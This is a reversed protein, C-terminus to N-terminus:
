AAPRSLVCISQGLYGLKEMALGSEFKVPHPLPVFAEDGDRITEITLELHSAWSQIADRSLFVNLPRDQERTAVSHAFVAWHSPVKFELFSFVIKGGPKLVRKAEQLCIYSDEHLLHTMVSFLCVWDAQGDREPIRTGNAVEFRWDTRPVLDHAFNVLDPVVDIGLYRGASFEALAKALRGSGCGVDIIYHAPMLGLYILLEREVMGMADFDGGVTKHMASATKRFFFRRKWSRAWSRYSQEDRRM